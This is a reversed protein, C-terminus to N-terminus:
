GVADDFVECMATYNALDEEVGSNMKENARRNVERCFAVLLDEDNQNEPMWRPETDRWEEYHEIVSDAERCQQYLVGEIAILPPLGRVGKLLWKRADIHSNSM